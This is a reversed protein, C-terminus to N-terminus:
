AKKARRRFAAFGALSAGFLSLSLPEPVGTPPPPTVRLTADFNDITAGSLGAKHWGGIGVGTGLLAVPVGGRTYTQDATGNFDTDLTVTLNTGVLSVVMHAADFQPIFFIGSQAWDGNGMGNDGFYIALKEFGFFGDESQAKVYINHQYDAYGLVLAAFDDTDGNHRIDAAITTGSAGTFLTTGVGGCTAQNSVITCSGNVDNTWNSGLSGDPRNFNDIISAQAGTACSLLLLGAFAACKTMYM